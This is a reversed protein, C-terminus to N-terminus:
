QLRSKIHQSVISMDARGQVKPKLWAMVKGMDAMKEAQCEEIAKEVLQLIEADGLPTPLYQNIIGLEYEEQAVLDARNANQYQSISEKRQKAMKDLLQLMRADDVETREDVEIQKIGANILRLVELRQKERARMADKLDHNIQEKISM